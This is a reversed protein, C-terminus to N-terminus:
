RPGITPLWTEIAKATTAAQEELVSFHDAAVPTVTDAVDWAPWPSDTAAVQLVPVSPRVPRWDPFLRLYAGMALLTDDTVALGDPDRDLVSGLAWELMADRRASDPELTDVMVVGATPYGQRELHSALTHAVVGGISHGVLVYPAGGLSARVAAALADLAATWTAPVRGDRDFGPLVLASTRARRAFATALRVFQHPGSGALFSPVCVLQPRADGDSVLVARPPPESRSTPLFRSGTALMPIADLLRGTEHAHRLLRTLTAPRTPIM